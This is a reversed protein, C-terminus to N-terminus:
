RSIVRNLVNTTGSTRSTWSTGNDSSTLITGSYGVALFTSNGYTVATLHNSTGSTRSTRSTWTTGNNSSTLINGSSGVAVISPTAESTFGTGTEYQNILANGASEDKVGTTIRIKYTTSFSLSSSPTFTFTKYDSSAIPSSSMQVCNSFSDSSVQVTRSCSTDSTNTTVSTNDM